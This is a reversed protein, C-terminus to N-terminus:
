SAALNQRDLPATTTIGSRLAGLDSAAMALQLLLRAVVHIHAEDEHVQSVQGRHAGCRFAHVGFDRPDVGEDLVRGDGMDSRLLEGFVAKFALKAGVVAAMERKTMQDKIPQDFALGADDNDAAGAVLHADPANLEFIHVEAFVVM